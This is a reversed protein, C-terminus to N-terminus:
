WDLGHRRLVPGLMILMMATAGLAALMLMCVQSAHPRVYKGYINSVVHSCSDKNTKSSWLQQAHYCWGACLHDEELRRLYTWDQIHSEEYARTGGATLGTLASRYEECDQIRFTEMLQARSHGTQRATQNICNSYLAYAAEWSRQLERKGNFSNCDQSFLKDSKDVANLYMTNGHWLLILNPLVLGVVVALKVPVGKRVHVLHVLLTIFPIVLVMFYSESQFYSVAPNHGITLVIWTPVSFLLAGVMTFAAPFMKLMDIEGDPKEGHVPFPSAPEPRNDMGYYNANPDNM